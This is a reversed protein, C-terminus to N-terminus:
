SRSVVRHRHCQSTGIRLRPSPFSQTKLNLLPPLQYSLLHHRFSRSYISLFLFLFLFRLRVGGAGAWCSEIYTLIQELFVDSIYGSTKPTGANACLLRAEQCTKLAAAILKFATEVNGVENWSTLSSTPTIGGATFQQHGWSQGLEDEDIDPSGPDASQVRELLTTVNESPEGQRVSRQADM